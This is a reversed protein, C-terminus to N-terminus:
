YRIRPDFLTYSLDILLNIAVYVFSFILTIGQIITYDRQLVADVTLRGLGPLAFVSETIVAGSLLLALGTGVTTVIPVAANKLAHVFLVLRNPAGKAYATRIYDSGLVEVVIARTIRTLLAMYGVALGFVPLILHSAFAWLGDAPSRYGQVPLWHLNISFAKILLFGLWFTPMSFGLVAFVMAARDIRTGRKWGALIGLPISVLVSVFLTSFALVATVQVRQGILRTVPLGSHLSTGLRGHALDNLYIGFQTYISKDLGMAVRIKQIADPTAYDGAIIAAPDGPSIRILVFVITVVIGMVPIVALIRRIVYALM